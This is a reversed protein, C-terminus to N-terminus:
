EREPVIVTWNEYIKIDKIGVEIYEEDEKSWVEIYVANYIDTGRLTEIVEEVVLM